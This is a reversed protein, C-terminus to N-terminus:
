WYYINDEGHEPFIKVVAPEAQLQCMEPNWLIAVDAGDYRIQWQGIIYEEAHKAWFDIIETLVVVHSYKMLQALEKTLAEKYQPM